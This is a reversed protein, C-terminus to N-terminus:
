TKILVSCSYISFIMTKKIVDSIVGWSPFLFDIYSSFSRLHLACSSVCESQFFVISECPRFETFKLLEYFHSIGTIKYYIGIIKLFNCKKIILCLMIRLFLTFFIFLFTLMQCPGEACKLKQVIKFRNEADIRQFEMVWFHAGRGCSISM